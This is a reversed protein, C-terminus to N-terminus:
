LAFGCALLSCFSLITFEFNVSAGIHGTAFLGWNSNLTFLGTQNLEKRVLSEVEVKGCGHYSHRIAVPKFLHM